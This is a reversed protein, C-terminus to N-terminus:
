LPLYQIDKPVKPGLLSDMPLPEVTYIHPQHQHAVSKVVNNNYMYWPIFLHCFATYILHFVIHMILCLKTYNTILIDLIIAEPPGGPPAPLAPPAALM